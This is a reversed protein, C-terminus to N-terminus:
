LSVQNCKIQGSASCFLEFRVRNWYNMSILLKSNDSRLENHGPLVMDIAWHMVAIGGPSIGRLNYSNVVGQHPLDIGAIFSPHFSELRPEASDPITKDEMLRLYWDVAILTNHIRQRTWRYFDYRFKSVCRYGTHWLQGFTRMRILFHRPTARTSIAICLVNKLPKLYHIGDVLVGTGGIYFYILWLQVPTSTCYIPTM